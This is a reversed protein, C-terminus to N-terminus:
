GAVGTIVDERSALLGPIADGVGLALRMQRGFRPVADAASPAFWGDCQPVAPKDGPWVERKGVPGSVVFDNDSEILRGGIGPTSAGM